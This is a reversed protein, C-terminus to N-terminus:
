QNRRRDELNAQFLKADNMYSRLAGQLDKLSALLFYMTQRTEVDGYKSNEWASRYREAVAEFCGNLLPDVLLAEARQGNRLREGPDIPPIYLQSFPQSHSFPPAPKKTGRLWRLWGLLSIM